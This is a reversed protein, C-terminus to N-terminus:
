IPKLQEGKVDNRSHFNSNFAQFLFFGGFDLLMLLHLIHGTPCLPLDQAVLLDEHVYFITLFIFFATAQRQASKEPLPAFVEMCVQMRYLQFVAPMFTYIEIANCIRILFFGPNYRTEKDVLQTVAAQVLAVVHIWHVDRHEESFLASWNFNFGFTLVSFAGILSVLNIVVYQDDQLDIDAVVIPYTWVRIAFLSVHMILVNTVFRSLVNIRDQSWVIKHKIIVLPLLQLVECGLFERMEGATSHHSMFTVMAMFCLFTAGLLGIPFFLTSTAKDGIQIMDKTELPMDVLYKDWSLLLLDFIM